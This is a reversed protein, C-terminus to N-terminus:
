AKILGPFEESVLKKTLGKFKGALDKDKCIILLKADEPDITELIRIFMVERQTENKVKPGGKVFYKFRKVIHKRVHDAEKPSAEKYPPSGKPVLWEITDDFAGKLFYRLHPTDYHKLVKTKEERNSAAAVKDLVEKLTQRNINENIM